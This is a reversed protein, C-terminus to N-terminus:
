AELSRKRFRRRKNRSLRRKEERKRKRKETERIARQAERIREWYAHEEAGELVLMRVDSGGLVSSPKVSTAAQAAAGPELFRVHAVENGRTHDIWGVQGYKSFAQRLDDRDVAPGLGEIRLILGPEFANEESEESVDTGDDTDTGAASDRDSATGPSTADDFAADEPRSPSETDGTVQQLSRKTAPKTSPADTKTQAGTRQLKRARRAEKAEANKRKLYLDKREITFPTQTGPVLLPHEAHRQLAKAVADESDFEVFVSGKFIVTTQDRDHDHLVLDQSQGGASPELAREADLEHESSAGARLKQCQEADTDGATQSTATTPRAAQEDTESATPRENEPRTATSSEGNPSCVGDGSTPVPGPRRHVKRRRMRVSLVKGFPEFVAMVDEIPPEAAPSEGPKFGKVYISREKSTDDLPLPKKRRVRQGDPSVEVLESGALAAAVKEATANLQKMRKFTVILQLDVYGEPDADVRARLFKDRPLNSDSFYFEVQNRLKEELSADVPASAKHVAMSSALSSSYAFQRLLVSSRAVCGSVSTGPLTEKHKLLAAALRDTAFSRARRGRRGYPPM